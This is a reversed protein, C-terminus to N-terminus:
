SVVLRVVLQCVISVSECVEMCLQEEFMRM